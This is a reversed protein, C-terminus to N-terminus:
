CKKALSAKTIVLRGTCKNEMVKEARLLLKEAFLPCDIVLSEFEGGEGAVNLGRKEHLRQLQKVDDRTISRGLWSEDLGDGAIATFWLVFGHDLLERMQVEQPKHWLPSFMKLGLEDCIREIRDRQYTSFLAGTVIGQIGYQEKAARITHQLDLLEKEKEGITNGIVLPLGMSQAQLTTLDITPTHFMFSDPNSSKMTILCTLEYNQRKMVYAAYTSDKGGSFLVGLKVNHSPYFQLLYQSKLLGQRKALKGIAHDIKSGYQAAIKKRSAFEEPVGWERAIDRLLLKTLDGSIKYEGPVRLVYEVLSRDLFPLRLELHLAMTIVDDRYLDREYMKLLGWVCEKNVDLAKKHREYGAFIEESGLGSFVVKCGDEKALECALFFTLAVGVKVVNSDEILPVIRSLYQPIDDRALERVKLPVDLARAARIAADLDKANADKIAATYLTVEHGHDKFYKALVTSDLGGSFLLGIKQHPIRKKIAEDLLAATRSKICEYSETHEPLHTVFSRQQWSVTHSSVEFFLLQRPILEQVNEYGLNELVKKESAFAFVETTYVYWLPKVGFLDRALLLQGDRLYAFAFVGDLSSLCEQGSEDLVRLLAEADNAADLVLEKWNYIECNAVLTGRGSLPQAVHDVVAHLTHGLCGGPVPKLAQGDRGREKLLCLARRVQSEASPGFIGVIGCM